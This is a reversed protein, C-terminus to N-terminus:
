GALVLMGRQQLVNAVMEAMQEPSSPQMNEGGSGRMQMIAGVVDPNFVTKEQETPISIGAVDALDSAAVELGM